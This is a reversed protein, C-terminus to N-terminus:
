RSTSAIRAPARTSRGQQTGPEDLISVTRFDDFPADHSEEPHFNARFYAYFTVTVQEGIM